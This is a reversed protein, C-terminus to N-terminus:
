ERTINRINQIFDIAANRIAQKVQLHPSKTESSGFIHPYIIARSSSIIAGLGDRNLCARVSTYDGGQAGLGPVLFVSNPLQKRLVKAQEPFTAGVVAGISSYGYKGINKDAWPKILDAVVEYLYRGGVLQDQIIAAGPNSTKVCVFVGKRSAIAAEFFPTLCDEGLYPVITLADIKSYRRLSSSGADNENEKVLYAEAYAESTSGIDGRKADLIVVLGRQYATLITKELANIGHSGFIEYYASQLKVAPVLDYIADIIQLNYLYIAEAQVEIGRELHIQQEQFFSVPIYKLAPDLGIICPTDKEQIREILHDAFMLM